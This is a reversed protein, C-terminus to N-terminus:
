QQVGSTAASTPPTNFATSGTEPAFVRVEVRRNQERGQRTKNDAVPADEGVGLVHVFRLPVKHEVTMYRVVADARRQSLAVNTNKNGVNDTFGQIEIVYRQQNSVQSALDDLTKKGDPTLTASGFRFLVAGEKNLKYTTLNDVYKGLAKTQNQAENAATMAQTASQQAASASQQAAAAKSDVQGVRENTQKLNSDLDGIRERTKSNENEIAEIQTGQEGSKREAASVRQDIPSIQRNVYKKTACGTFSVLALSTFTTIVFRNQFM